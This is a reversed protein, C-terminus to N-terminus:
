KNTFIKIQTPNNYTIHKLAKLHHNNHHLIEIMAVVIQLMQQYLLNPTTGSSLLSM